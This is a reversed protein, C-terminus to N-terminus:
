EVRPHRFAPVETGARSSMILTAGAAAAIAPILTWFWSERPGLTLMVVSHVAAATVLLTGLGLRFLNQPLVRWWEVFAAIKAGSRSAAATTWVWAVVRDLWGVIRSSEIAAKVREDDTM